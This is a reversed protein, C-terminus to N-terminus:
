SARAGSNAGASGVGSEDSGPVFIGPAPPTSAIRAWSASSSARPRQGHASDECSVSKAVVRALRRAAMPSCCSLSLSRVVRKQALALSWVSVTNSVASWTRFDATDTAASTTVRNCIEGEALRADVSAAFRSISSSRENTSHVSGRRLAPSVSAPSPTAFRSSSAIRVSIALSCCSPSRHSCSTLRRSATARREVALTLQTALRAGGRPPRRAVHAAARLFAPACLSSASDM